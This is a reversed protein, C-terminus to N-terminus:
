DASGDGGRRHCGLLHADVMGTAEMLAQASTPGIFRIGVRRLAKALAESEPTRTPVESTHRPVLPTAPRHSWVLQDIGGSDRLAIVARANTRAAQIKARNRVIAADAMLAELHDDSFDAVVEPVFDAFASRFASRKALITLWSLGAQFGELVIREYLAAEGHVPQGWERDHYDMLLANGSAWPCRALGDAGVTVSGPAPVPREPTPTM